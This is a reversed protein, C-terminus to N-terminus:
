LQIINILFSSKNFIIHPIANIPAKNRNEVCETIIPILMLTGVGLFELMLAGYINVFEESLFIIYLFSKFFIQFELYKM